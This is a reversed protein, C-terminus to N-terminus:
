ALAPGAMNALVAQGAPTLARLAARRGSGQLELQVELDAGPLWGEGKRPWEVLVVSDALRDRLGLFELEEAQSIRYLDVHVVSFGRVPYTELLTYTPSVVTAGYGLARVLGRVLTTKGAGLDGELAILLPGGTIAGALRRGLALTAAENELSFRSEEAQTSM